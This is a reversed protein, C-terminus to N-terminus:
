FQGFMFPLDHRKVLLPGNDLSGPVEDLYLEYCSAREAQEHEYFIIIHEHSLPGIESQLQEEFLGKLSEVIEDEMTYNGVIGWTFLSGKPGQNYNKPNCIADLLWEAEREMDPTRHKEVLSIVRPDFKSSYCVSFHVNHGM